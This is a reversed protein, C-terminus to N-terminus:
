RASRLPAGAARLVATVFETKAATYKERENGHEEALARKLAEYRRALAPDARLADRFAVLRVWEDGMHVVLHVHHTRVGGPALKGFRRDDLRSNISEPFEWGHPALRAPAALVAAITALGVLMDVVPKAALGPVATSGIHEVGLSAGGLIARLAAAGHEFAATWAADHPVIRVSDSVRRDYM